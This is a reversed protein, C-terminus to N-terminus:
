LGGSNRVSQEKISRACFERDKWLVRGRFYHWVSATTIAIYASIGAPLAFAFVKPLNLFVVVPMAAVAQGLLGMLGVALWALRFVEAGDANWLGFLGVATAVWPTWAMLLGILAGTAYKHLQYDMGAYANKRLGRWIDQFSGYMHTQSLEPTADVQLRGGQSKVRSAFQIDEVIEGRVSEIGGVREYTSRRILVFAGHALAEPRAPDNVRRLPYLMSLIQILALAISGQWFTDCRPRGLFSIFDAESREAQDLATALANPHLWLDADVMWVWESDTADVGQHLAWTKGVWGHPRDGGPLLRVPHRDPGAGAVAQRVLDATGDVSQDDVVHISLHPYEQAMLCELTQAIHASENRAPVVAAVTPAEAGWRRDTPRLWRSSRSRHVCVFALAVWGLTVVLALIFGFIM